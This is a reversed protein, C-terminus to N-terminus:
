RRKSRMRELREAVDVARAHRPCAHGEDCGGGTCRKDSLRMCTDVLRDTRAYRASTMQAYALMQPDRPPLDYKATM